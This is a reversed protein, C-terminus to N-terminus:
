VTTSEEMAEINNRGKRQDLRVHMFLDEVGTLDINKLNLVRRSRDGFTAFIKVGKCDKTMGLLSGILLSPECACRDIRDLLIFTPPLHPFLQKMITCPLRPENTEWDKSGALKKIEGYVTGRLLHPHQKLIQWILSTFIKHAPVDQIMWDELQIFYYIVLSAHRDLTKYLDFVATSAWFKDSNDRGAKLTLGHLIFLASRDCETWDKFPQQKKLLKFDFREYKSLIGPDRLNREYIQLERLPIEEVKLIEEVELLRQRDFSREREIHISLSRAFSLYCDPNMGELVSRLSANEKHLADM